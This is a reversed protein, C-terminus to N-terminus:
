LNNFWKIYEASASNSAPTITDTVPKLVNNIDNFLGGFSFDPNLIIEYTKTNGKTTPAFPILSSFEDIFDSFTSGRRRHCGSTQEQFNSGVFQTVDFPTHTKKGEFFGNADSQRFANVVINGLGPVSIPKPSGSMYLTFKEIYLYNNNMDTNTIFELKDLLEEPIDSIILFSKTDIKVIQTSINTSIRQILKEQTFLLWDRHNFDPERLSPLDM